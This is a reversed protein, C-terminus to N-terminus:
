NEHNLPYEQAVHAAGDDHTNVDRKRQKEADDNQNQAALVGIQQGDASDIETDDDIGGNNQDFIDVSIKLRPWFFSVVEQVGQGFFFPAGIWGASASGP